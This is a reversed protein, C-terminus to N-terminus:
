NNAEKIHTAIMDAQHTWLVNPCAHIARTYDNWEEKDTFAGMHYRICLVEEISLYTLISAFMISKDGHGRFIPEKNYEYGTITYSAVHKEPECPENLRSTPLEVPEEKWGLIPQYDDCKCLDHLMGIIYPSAPRGWKLHNNNTLDVLADTVHRSHDYLGGKYNLHHKASAPAAFFGLNILQDVLYKPDIQEFHSLYHEKFHAIRDYDNTAESM